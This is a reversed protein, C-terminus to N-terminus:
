EGKEIAEELEKKANELLLRAKERAEHSQRVLSAIKKQIKEPLVPILIRKLSDNPVATLITGACQKKLQAQIVICKSLVLLVEPPIKLSRFQFFGTSALSGEHKEDVLAVKELSGEVSSVVM